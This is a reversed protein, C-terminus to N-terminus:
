PSTAWSLIKNLIVTFAAGAAAIGAGKLATLDTWGALNTSLVAIGTTVATKFARIITDRWGPEPALAALTM